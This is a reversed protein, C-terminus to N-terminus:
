RKLKNLEPIEMDLKHSDQTASTALKKKELMNRIEKTASRKTAAKKDEARVTKRNCEM